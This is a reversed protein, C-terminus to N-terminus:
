HSYTLSRSIHEFFGGFLRTIVDSVTGMPALGVRCVGKFHLLTTALTSCFRSASVVHQKARLSPTMLTTIYAQDPNIFQSALHAFTVKGTQHLCTYSSAFHAFLELWGTIHAWLFM